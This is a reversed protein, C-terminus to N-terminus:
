SNKDDAKVMKVFLNVIQPDLRKGANEQIIRAATERNMAKTGSSPHMLKDYYDAVAIVRAILPIELGKIGKPYGLGDWREHHYLAAEALELTDDFSHL